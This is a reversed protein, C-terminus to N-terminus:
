RRSRSEEVVDMEKGTVSKVKAALKDMRKQSQREIDKM